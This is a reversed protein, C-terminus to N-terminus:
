VKREYGEGGHRASETECPEGHFRRLLATKFERPGEATSLVVTGYDEVSKNSRVLMGNGEKYDHLVATLGKDDTEVKPLGGQIQEYHREEAQPITPGLRQGM